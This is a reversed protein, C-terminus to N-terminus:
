FSPKINSRSGKGHSKVSVQPLSIDRGQFKWHFEVAFDCVVRPYNSIIAGALAALDQQQCLFNTQKFTAYDQPAIYIRIEHLIDGNFLDDSTQAFSSLKFVLIWFLVFTFNIIRNSTM